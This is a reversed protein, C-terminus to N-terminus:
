PVAPGDATPAQGAVWAEFLRAEGSPFGATPRVESHYRKFAAAFSAPDRDFWEGAQRSGHIVREFRLRVVLLAAIGFGDPDANALGDRLDPALDPDRAARAVAAAPDPDVLARALLEELRALEASM